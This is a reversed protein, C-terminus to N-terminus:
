RREGPPGTDLEAAPAPRRGPLLRRARGPRAGRGRAHVQSALHRRLGPRLPRGPHRRRVLTVAANMGALLSATGLGTGTGLELMARGPKAVALATLLRGDEAASSM